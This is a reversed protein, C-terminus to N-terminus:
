RPQPKNRRQAVPSHAPPGSSDPLSAAQDSSWSTDRTSSRSESQPAATSASCAAPAPVPPTPPLVRSFRSQRKSSQHHQGRSASQCNLLRRVLACGRRLLLGRRLRWRRSPHPHRLANHLPQEHLPNQHIKREYSILTAHVRTVHSYSNGGPRRNPDKYSPLLRAPPTPAKPATKRM